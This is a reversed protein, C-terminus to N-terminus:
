NPTYLDQMRFTRYEIVNQHAEYVTKGARTVEYSYADITNNEQVFGADFHYHGDRLQQASGVAAAYVGLDANLIPTVTMKTEDLQLVQGRSNGGGMQTVRTNGDDFVLLKNGPELNGDHQHSFWPYPDRSNMAFDGDRGLKWLIRGDGTGGDYNLKILWDQHRTSYLLNGDPTEEVANGHTWDNAVKSLQLPPCASPCTEGLVATRHVDLHDFTDWAWVVQLDKDLVVIMDGLVDVPGPAQVDTLVQEVGALVVVRGDGISRAEHHFGTISRMGLAHLQENVRAANTSQVIMGTLDFRQLLQKSPDQGALEILGWMDGGAIPRTLMGTNGVGYWIV